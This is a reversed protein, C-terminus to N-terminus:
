PNLVELALVASSIRVSSSNSDILFLSKLPPVEDYSFGLTQNILQTLHGLERKTIPITILSWGRLIIFLLTM